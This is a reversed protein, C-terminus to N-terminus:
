WFHKADIFNLTQTQVHNQQELRTNNANKLHRVGYDSQQKFLSTVHPQFHMLLKEKLMNVLLKREELFVVHQPKSQQLLIFVLGRPFQFSHTAM